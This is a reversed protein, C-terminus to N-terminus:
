KLFTKELVPLAEKLVILGDKIMIRGLSLDKVSIVKTKPLNRASYELNKDAGSIVINAGKAGLGLKETLHALVRALEKTKIQELKLAELVWLKKQSLKDSLVMFLGQRFNQRNVKKSFNRNSRPGFIVGGGKWLPSRISGVRARGTGKQKWPKKGGGRVEGRTKTHAISQRNNALEAVVLQQVLSPNPKVEFIRPSLEVEGTIEGQINYVPAKPM